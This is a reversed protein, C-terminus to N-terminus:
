HAACQLIQHESSWVWRRNLQRCGGSGRREDTGCLSVPEPVDGPPGRRHADDLLRDAISAISIALRSAPTATALAPALPLPAAPPPAATALPPPTCSCQLRKSQLVPGEECCAEEATADRSRYQTPHSTPCGNGDKVHPWHFPHCQDLAGACLSRRRRISGLILRGLILM